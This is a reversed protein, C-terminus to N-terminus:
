LILTRPESELFEIVTKSREIGNQDIVSLVEELSEGVAVIKDNAMAVWKDPHQKTLKGRLSKMREVSRRYEQLGEHIRKPGGLEQVLEEIRSKTVM